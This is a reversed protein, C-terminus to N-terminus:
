QKTPKASPLFHDKPLSRKMMLGMELITLIATLELGRGNTSFKRTIAQSNKTDIMRKKWSDNCEYITFHQMKILDQQHIHMQGMLNNAQITSWSLSRGCSRIQPCGKKFSTNQSPYVAIHSYPIFQRVSFCMSFNNQTSAVLSTPKPILSKWHEM